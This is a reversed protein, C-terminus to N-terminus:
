LWRRVRQKYDLYIDGFSAELKHEEYPCFVANIVFFYILGVLYFPPSGVILALATMMLVIGLYMPNRSFRYIGTTVLHRSTATPCIATDFRKFLAWGWLMISFGVLGLAIGLYPESYAGRGADAFAWHWLAAIATLLQAIRPPRLEILRSVM